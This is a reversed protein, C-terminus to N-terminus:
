LSEHRDARPCERRRDARLLQALWLRRRVEHRVRFAAYWLMRLSVHRGARHELVQRQVSARHREAAHRPVAGPQAAGEMGCRDKQGQRGHTKGRYPYDLIPAFTPQLLSDHGTNRSAFAWATDDCNPMARQVTIEAGGILGRAVSRRSTRTIPNMPNACQRDC